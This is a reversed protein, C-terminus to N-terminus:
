TIDKEVVETCARPKAVIYGLYETEQACFVSKTVNVKLGADRLQIFDVELKNLHDTLSGGPSSWSTTLM